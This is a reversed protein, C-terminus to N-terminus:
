QQYIIFNYGSFAQSKVNSVSLMGIVNVEKTAFCLLMIELVNRKIVNLMLIIVLISSQNTKKKM